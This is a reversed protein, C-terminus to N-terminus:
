FWNITIPANLLDGSGGTVTGEFNVEIGALNNLAKPTAGDTLYAKPIIIAVCNGATHGFQIIINKATSNQYDDNLINYTANSRSMADTWLITGGVVPKCMTREFGDIGNVGNLGEKSEFTIGPDITLEGISMKQAANYTASGNNAALFLGEHVTPAVSGNFAASTDIADSPPTVWRWSGCNLEVEFGPIEGIGLGNITVPGMCGIGQMQNYTGDGIALWDFYEQAQDPDPYVTHSFVVADGDQQAVPIALDFTIYNTNVSAIRRVQGGGRGDGRAGLLVAQGAVVFGEVGTIYTTDVSHTGADDALDTKNTSPSAIGGFIKSLLTAETPPTVTASGKGLYMGIKLSGQKPGPIRAPNAFKEVQLVASEIPTEKLGSADFSTIALKKAENAAWTDTDNNWSPDNAATFTTTMSTQHKLRFEKIREIAM